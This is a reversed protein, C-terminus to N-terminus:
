DLDLLHPHSMPEESSAGVILVLLLTSIYIIRQASAATLHELNVFIQLFFRLRKLWV